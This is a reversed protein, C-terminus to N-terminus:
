GTARALEELQINLQDIDDRLSEINEEIQRRRHNLPHLMFYQADQASYKVCITSSWRVEWSNLVQHFFM